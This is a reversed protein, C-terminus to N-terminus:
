GHHARMRTARLVFLVLAGYYAVWWGWPIAYSLPPAIAGLIRITGIAFSLPVLVFWSIPLALVTSVMGVGALLFGGGMVIPVLELIITNALLSIVSISGFSAILIPAVALQAAGTTFISERWGFVSPDKEAIGFWAVLAPRLYVIGLLALFSLQFGLDFLLVNPNEFVMVVGACAIANRMSYIRGSESALLVLGGMLAARVVSAEAGTMVVFGFMAVLTAFFAFRKRMFYLFFGMAAGVIITINYGSLAVIHTTGTRALADRFGNSLDSREGLTIGSLLAAEEQPMLKEFVAVIRAKLAFLSSRASSGFGSGIVELHDPFRVTGLARDRKMAGANQEESSPAIVGEVLVADGYAIKPFTRSVIALRGSHPGRLEMIWRASGSRVVPNSVVIGSVAAKEGIPAHFSKAARVADYTALFGGALMCLSLGALWRFRGRRKPFFAGAILFASISATTGLVIGFAFGASSLLVGCLFFCAGFFFIDYSAM